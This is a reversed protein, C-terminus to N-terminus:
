CPSNMQNAHCKERNAAIYYEPVLKRKEKESIPPSAIAHENWRRGQAEKRRGGM